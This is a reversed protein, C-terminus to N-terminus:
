GYRFVIGKEGRPHRWETGKACSGCEICGEHQIMINEGEQYYCRTPCLVILKRLFDSKPDHVIIHSVPDDNFKLRAVRDEVSPPSPVYSGTMNKGLKSALEVPVQVYTEESEVLPLIKDYGLMNAIGVAIGRLKGSSMLRFILRYRSGVIEKPISKTSDLFIKLYEKDIEKMDATYPSEQLLSSYYEGMYSEKFNGKDISRSVAEAARAADDIGVNLGEIRPGVFIGRGAADGIFLINKHYPKKMRCRKGDPVLKTSYELEVYNSVFSANYIDLLQQKISDLKLKIDEISRYKGIDILNSRRFPSYYSYRLEEYTKLLKTVTLWKKLQEEKPLEKDIEVKTIDDKILESVFPNKIMTDVLMSPEAPNSILSDYHYVAGLSLTDRNTYLFGGGIHNLTIDGAFLHAAGESSGIDFRQDIIDEPLKIVVKVGQYVEDPSFKERAGTFYAIESNVGDAAIIAKVQFEELEDTQIITKDDPTWIIDRVHVGCVIGGGQREAGESALSGFWSNLKSMLVSYAFNTNYEHLATLDIGFIKSGSTAHLVYKTIRRELPASREFDPGYIDEVNYIKKNKPRKSYLLGGSINKTGIQSGAEILIAQKGLDSLQKLAALGASGGGIIAM